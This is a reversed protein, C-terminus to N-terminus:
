LPRASAVMCTLTDLGGGLDVIGRLTRVTFSCVEPRRKPTHPLPREAANAGILDYYARFHTATDPDTRMSHRAIDRPEGARNSRAATYPDERASSDAAQASRGSELNMFGNTLRTTEPLPQHTIFIQATNGVRARLPPLIRDQDGAGPNLPKLVMPLHDQRIGRITWEVMNALPVIDQGHELDVDDYNWDALSCTRTSEGSLLSVRARVDNGPAQGFRDRHVPKGKGATLNLASAPIGAATPVPQGGAGVEISSRDLKVWCFGARYYACRSRSEMSDATFSMWAYHSAERPLLLHTPGGGSPRDPALLILGTMQIVVTLSQM